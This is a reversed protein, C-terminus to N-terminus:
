DPLIKAAPVEMRFPKAAFGFVPEHNPRYGFRDPWSEIHMNASGFRGWLQGVTFVRRGDELQGVGPMPIPLWTWPLSAPSTDVRIVAILGEDDTVRLTSDQWQFQAMNKPLGWIRRGGWVSELSDVWIRDVHIGIRGGVRVLAGLVLEDYRLTGEQYRVITVILANPDLLHHLGAPLQVPAGSKFYGMWLQGKMKWPPPPYPIEELTQLRPKM